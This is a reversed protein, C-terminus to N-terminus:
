PAAATSPASSIRVPVASTRTPFHHAGPPRALDFLRRVVADTPDPM